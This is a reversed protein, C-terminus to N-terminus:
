TDMDVVKGGGMHVYSAWVAPRKPFQARLETVADHLARAPDGSWRLAAYFYSAAAAADRDGVAWLTGVVNRSGAVLFAAAISIAEDPLTPGTAATHCASLYVLDPPTALDAALESVTLRGDWLELGSDRPNTPSPQAHCALHLVSAGAAATRVAAKTAQAGLLEDPRRGVANEFTNAEQPVASLVALDSGPLHDVGVFTATGESRGPRAIARVLATVTSTYSSVVRDHVSDDSAGAAHVPLLTFSGTPCWWLPSGPPLALTDLIPQAVHEWLWPLVIPLARHMPARMTETAAVVESPAVPLPMVRVGTGSVVLADCRTGAANLVVVTREGLAKVLQDAKPRRLFDAFGPHTRARTVLHEWERALRLVTGGDRDGPHALVGALETLRAATDPAAIALASYDGRLDIAQNWLVTRGSELFELATMPDGSAIAHAAAERPVNAWEALLHERTEVDVGVSALRLVADVAAGWAWVADQHRGEDEAARAWRVAAQVRTESAAGLAQAASRYTDAAAEGRARLTDGLLISARARTPTDAPTATVLRTALDRAESLHEDTGSDLLLQILPFVREPTDPDGPPSVQAVRLYLDVAEASQGRLEHVAAVTALRGPYAPDTVPTREVVDVASDAAERLAWREGTRHYRDLLADALNARVALRTSMSADKASERYLDIAAALDRLQRTARYRAHLAGALNAQRPRLNRSKHDVASRALDVARDLDVFRGTLGFATLHATSLSAALTDSPDLHAVASGIALAEDIDVWSGTASARQTLASVLVAPVESWTYDAAAETRLLEIAEDLIEADGSLAHWRIMGFATTAALASGATDFPRDLAGVATRGVFVAEALHAYDGTETDLGILNNVRNQLLEANLGPGTVLAAAWAALGPADRDGAARWLEGAARLVAEPDSDLLANVDHWLLKPVAGEEDRLLTFLSLARERAARGADRSLLEARQLESLAVTAAPGAADVTSTAALLDLAENELEAPTRVGPEGTATWERVRDAIALWLQFPDIRRIIPAPELVVPHDACRPVPEDGHRYWVYNGDVPCVHRAPLGETRTPQADVPRYEPDDMLRSVWSEIEADSVLAARLRAVPTPQACLLDRLVGDLGADPALLALEPRVARAAEVFGDRHEAAFVYAEPDAVLLDTGAFGNALLAALVRSDGQALTAVQEPRVTAHVWTLTWHEVDEVQGHIPLVLLEARGYPLLHRADSASALSAAGIGRRDVVVADPLHAVAVGRSPHGVAADRVVVIEYVTRWRETCAELLDGLHDVYAAAWDGEVRDFGISALTGLVGGGPLPTRVVAALPDGPEALLSASPDRSEDPNWDVYLVSYGWQALHGAVTLATDDPLQATFTVIM